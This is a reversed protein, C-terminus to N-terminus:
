TPRLDDPEDGELKEGREIRVAAEEVDRLGMACLLGRLLLGAAEEDTSEAIIELVDDLTDIEPCTACLTRGLLELRDRLSAGVLQAAEQESDPLMESIACYDQWGPRRLVFTHKGALAPVRVSQQRTHKRWGTAAKKKAAAM